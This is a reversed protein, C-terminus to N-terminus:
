ALALSSRYAHQRELDRILAILERVRELADELRPHSPAKRDHRQQRVTDRIPAEPRRTPPVARLARYLGADDAEDGPLREARVRHPPKDTVNRVPRRKSRVARRMRRGRRTVLTM